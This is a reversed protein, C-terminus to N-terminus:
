LLLGVASAALLLIVVIRFSWEPLLRGLFLGLLTGGATPLALALALPMVTDSLGAVGWQLTFSIPYAILFATLTTARVTDKNQRIATAYAAIPPGPMALTSNLIGSVGGVAGRRWGNDRTFIPFRELMGTALFAMFGVAVAAGIKLQGISLLGFLVAGIPSGICIGILIPTLLSRNVKPLASPSVLVAILLSLLISVQIASATGMALILAPGAIVGFGIGTAAQLASAAVVVAVLLASLEPPVLM